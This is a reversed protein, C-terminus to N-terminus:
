YFTYIQMVYTQKGIFSYAGNKINEDQLLSEIAGKVEEENM